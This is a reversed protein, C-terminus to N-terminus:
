FPDLLNEPSKQMTDEISAKPCDQEAEKLMASATDKHLQPKNSM